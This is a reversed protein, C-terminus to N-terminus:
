ELVVIKKECPCLNWMTKMVTRKMIRNCEYYPLMPELVIEGYLSHSIDRTNGFNMSYIKMIIILCMDKFSAWM